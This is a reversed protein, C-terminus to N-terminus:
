GVCGADGIEKEFSDCEVLPSKVAVFVVKEGPKSTFRFTHRNNAPPGRSKKGGVECGGFEKCGIYTTYCIGSFLALTISCSLM